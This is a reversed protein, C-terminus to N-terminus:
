VRNLSQQQLTKREANREMEYADKQKIACSSRIRELEDLSIVAANKQAPAVPTQYQASPAKSPTLRSKSHAISQGSQM